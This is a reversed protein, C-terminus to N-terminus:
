VGGEEILEKIEKLEEPSLGSDKILRKVLGSPAGDFVNDVIHSLTRKEYSTKKLVPSYIHTKGDKSSKVVGKKELIRIITSASTYAMKRKPPVKELINRVTATELGWLINMLELETETLLAGIAKKSM